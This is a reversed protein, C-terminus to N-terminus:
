TSSSWAQSTSTFTHDEEPNPQIEEDSSLLHHDFNQTTPLANWKMTSQIHAFTYEEIIPFSQQDQEDGDAGL